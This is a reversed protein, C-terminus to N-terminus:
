LWAQVQLSNLLRPFPGRDKELSPTGGTINRPPMRPRCPNIGFGQFGPWSRNRESTGVTVGGGPGHPHPRSTPNAGAPRRDGVWGAGPPEKGRPEVARGGDARGLGGGLSGRVRM